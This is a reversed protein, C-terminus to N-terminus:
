AARSATKAADVPAIAIRWVAAAGSACAQTVALPVAAVHLPLPVLKIVFINPLLAVRGSTLVLNLLPLNYLMRLSAVQLPLPVSKTMMLSRQLTVHLPPLAALSSASSPPALM